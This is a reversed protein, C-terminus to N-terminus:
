ISRNCPIHCNFCLSALFALSNLLSSVNSSKESWQQDSFLAMYTTSSGLLQLMEREADVNTGDEEM